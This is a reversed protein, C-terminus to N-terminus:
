SIDNIRKRRIRTEATKQSLVTRMEDRQNSRMLAKVQLHLVHKINEFLNDKKLSSLVYFYICNDDPNYRITQVIDSHFSCSTKQLHCNNVTESTCGQELCYAWLFVKYEDFKFYSKVFVHQLKPKLSCRIYKKNWQSHITFEKGRSRCPLSEKQKRPYQKIIPSM